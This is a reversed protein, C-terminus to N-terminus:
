TMGGWTQARGLSVPGLQSPDCLFSSPSGPVEMWQKGQGLVAALAQLYLDQGSGKGSM